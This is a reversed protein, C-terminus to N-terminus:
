AVVASVQNASLSKANRTWSGARGLLGCEATFCVKFQKIYWSCFVLLIRTLCVCYGLLM